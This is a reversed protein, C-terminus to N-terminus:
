EAWSYYQVESVTQISSANRTSGLTASWGTNAYQTTSYTTTTLVSGLVQFNPLNSPFTLPDNITETSNPQLTTMVWQYTLSPVPLSVSIRTYTESWTINYVQLGVAEGINVTFTGQWDFQSTPVAHYATNNAGDPFGSPDVTTWRATEPNYERYKFAYSGSEALYPKGTYFGTSSDVTSPRSAAEKAVTKATTDARWKALQAPTQFDPM